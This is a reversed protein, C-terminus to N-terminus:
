FKPEPHETHGDVAIVQGSVLRAGDSALFVALKAAQHMSVGGGSVSTEQPCMGQLAIQEM